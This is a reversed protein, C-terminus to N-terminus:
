ALILVSLSLGPDLKCRRRVEDVFDLKAEIFDKVRAGMLSGAGKALDEDKYYGLHIHEGWYYELIQEETWADYEKGVTNQGQEYTRSPTDLVRKIKVYGAASYHPLSLCVLNLNFAFNRKM